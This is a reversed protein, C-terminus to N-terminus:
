KTRRLFDNKNLKTHIGLESVKFLYHVCERLSLPYQWGFVGAECFTNIQGLIVNVSFVNVTMGFTQSGNLM